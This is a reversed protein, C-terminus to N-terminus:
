ETEKPTLLTIHYIFSSSYRRNGRPRHNDDFLGIYTTDVTAIVDQPLTQSAGAKTLIACPLKAAVSDASHIDLPRIKRNAAYVLEIRLTSDCDHYFPIDDLEKIDRTLRISHIDPNNIINNLCPLFFLEAAAFLLTVGWLMRMPKLKVTGVAIYVVIAVCVITMAALAIVGIHGPKYLMAWAVFPLAFTVAAILWSNISFCIKDSKPTYQQKNLSTKWWEVICAMVYAAPILLPLLYRSKKEPLLSLLVLSFLMWGMAFLWRRDSRRQLSFMPQFIAFLLLLSWVGTELFFKWYYWWPRVNHNVWSGSEKQVVTSLADACAHHIYLYWWCGIVIAILAMVVIAWGKGRGKPHLFICASLIFPLFLAYLSVPGKSMISLGIYVGAAIFQGWRCKGRDTPECKGATLAVALHYIGGMMFAHTFIDWSATRGMLILNYCTCLLLTPVLPDIKLVRKAFKWFYLALLLAALGAATRQAVINDPSIIEAVAAIWTPLPPKEIRLEGNMTPIIWNGDYVMERATIINRSEMIDPLIISNNALFAVICIACAAISISIKRDIRIM